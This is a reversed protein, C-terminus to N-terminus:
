YSFWQLHLSTILKMLNKEINLANTIYSVVALNSISSHLKSPTLIYGKKIAKLM